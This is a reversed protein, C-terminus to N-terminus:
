VKDSNAKIFHMLSCGNLKFPLPAITKKPTWIKKRAEHPLPYNKECCTSTVNNKRCIVIIKLAYFAKLFVIETWILSLIKKIEKFNASLIFIEGFFWLM